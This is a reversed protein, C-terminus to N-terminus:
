IERGAIKLLESDWDVAVGGMVKAEVTNLLERLRDILERISDRHREDLGVEDAIHLAEVLDRSVAHLAGELKFFGLGSEAALQRRDADGSEIGKEAKVINMAVQRATEEVTAGTEEAREQAMRRVRKVEDARSDHVHRYSLERADAIAEIVSEREVSTNARKRAEEWTMPAGNFQKIDHANAYERVTSPSRGVARAYAAFSVREANLDDLTWHWRHKALEETASEASHELKHDTEIVEQSLRENM